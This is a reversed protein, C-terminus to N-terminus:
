AFDGWAHQLLTMAVIAATETRLIRPGMRFPHVNAQQAATLEAESFGGEPGVLLDVAVSSPAEYSSLTAQTTPDCILSFTDRKIWESFACPAHIRPVTCRGSQESASIAIKQWHALRKELREGSRKVNCFSSILPTIDSVGLETAKQIAFDMRDGRSVGQALHISLPSARRIDRFSQIEVVAARKTASVINAVYEGGEGNFLILTDGVALRLVSLIHHSASADLQVTQHLALVGAHYIRIARM